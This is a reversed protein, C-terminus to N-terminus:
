CFWLLLVAAFGLVGFVCLRWWCVLREGACVLNFGHLRGALLGSNLGVM